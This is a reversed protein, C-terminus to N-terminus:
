TLKHLRDIYDKQETTKLRLKSNEKLCHDLVAYVGIGAQLSDIATKFLPDAEYRNEGNQFKELIDKLAEM